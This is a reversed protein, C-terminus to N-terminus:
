SPHFKEFYIQNLEDVVPQIPLPEDLGLSILEWPYTEESFANGDVFFDPTSTSQTLHSIQAPFDQQQQQQQPPAREEYEVMREDNGVPAAESRNLSTVGPADDKKLLTEVQALRAELLKM